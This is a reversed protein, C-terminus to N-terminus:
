PRGGHPYSGTAVGVAVLTGAFFRFKYVFTATNAAHIAFFPAIRSPAFPHDRACRSARTGHARLALRDPLAWRPMLFYRRPRM